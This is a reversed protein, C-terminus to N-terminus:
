AANESVEWLWAWSEGYDNKSVTLTGGKENAIAIVDDKSADDTGFCRALARGLRAGDTQAPDQEFKADPYPTVYVSAAQGATTNILTIVESANEAGADTTHRVRDFSFTAGDTEKMQTRLSVFELSDMETTATNWDVM